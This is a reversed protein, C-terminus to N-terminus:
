AVRLGARREFWALRTKLDREAKGESRILAEIERTRLQVAGPARGVTVFAISVFLFLAFARSSSPM